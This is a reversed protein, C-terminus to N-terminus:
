RVSTDRRRAAKDDGRRLLRAELVMMLLQDRWCLALVVPVAVAVCLVTM